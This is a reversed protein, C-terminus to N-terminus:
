LRRAVSSTRQLAEVVARILDQYNHAYREPNDLDIDEGLSPGYFSLFDRIMRVKDEWSNPPVYQDFTARVYHGVMEFKLREAIIDYQAHLGDNTGDHADNYATVIDGGRRRYEHEIAEKARGAAEYSPLEGGNPNCRSFLYNYYTGLKQDYEPFGSVTSSSDHFQMRADSLARAVERAIRREDLASVLMQANSM